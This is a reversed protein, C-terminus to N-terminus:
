IAPPMISDPEGVIKIERELIVGSHEAVRAIVLEILSEIDQAKAHGCNIIFNAHKESVQAAGIKLGRLGAQQILRGAYDDPPNRFVSGANLESTPQTAARVALLENINQLARGLTDPAFNLDASIFWEEAPWRVSRYGIQFESAKREHLQGQRDITTVSQVHSWTEDGHCGANMMLAGGLTGPIGALFEAGTLSLRAAFRAVKACPVGAQVRLSLSDIQSMDMLGRLTQIVIGRWGGDRILTNSGLGLWFLPQEPHQNLFHQLSSISSPIFLQDAPGGVRWTTFRALAINPTVVDLMTRVKQITAVSM